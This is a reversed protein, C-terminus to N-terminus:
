LVTVRTVTVHDNDNWKLRVVEDGDNDGCESDIM